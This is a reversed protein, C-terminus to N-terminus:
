IKRKTFVNKKDHKLYYNAKDKKYTKFNNKEFLKISSINDKKIEALIDKDSNFEQLAGNLLQNGLGRGHYNPDLAISIIYVNDKESFDFRCYGIAEKKENELVLCHNDNHSFYRKEFWEQHKELPIVEPNNSNQRVLPHNRIEWVRRSDEKKILRLLYNNQIQKM